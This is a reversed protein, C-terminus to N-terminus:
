DSPPWTTLAPAGLDVFLDVSIRHERVISDDPFRASLERSAAKVAQSSTPSVSPLAGM